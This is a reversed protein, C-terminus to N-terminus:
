PDVYVVIHCEVSASSLPLPVVDWHSINTILACHYTVYTSLLFVFFREGVYQWLPLIVLLRSVLISFSFTDL